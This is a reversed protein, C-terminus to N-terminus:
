DRLSTSDLEAQIIESLMEPTPPKVLFARVGLEAARKRDREEPFGTLIVVPLDQLASQSRIWFLVEFGDLFPLKLDIFILVPSPYATRDCYKGEGSLYDIAAQGDMAVHLAVNSQSNKLAHRMLYVDDENDEVLLITSAPKSM